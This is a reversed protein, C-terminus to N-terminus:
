KKCLKILFVLNNLKDSLIIIFNLTDCIINLNYEILVAFLFLYMTLIINIYLFTM